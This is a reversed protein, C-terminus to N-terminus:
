PRRKTAGAAVFAAVAVIMWAALYVFAARPSVVTFLLGAVASAAFNGLSQITALAGFASGRVDLSAHNAVAAHEATEAFAIGLGAVGFCVALVVIQPGTVAFGVFSAAFAVAGLTLVPLSGRRDGLHGGPVSAIAAVANYGIYLWLAIQTAGTSGHSPSLLQVARLILLTAAVNGVEFAGIGFFLKGLEGKLVPRIQFRIPKKAPRSAHRTARIAYVIALSALLPGGIAGLNDMMREFGYAKGYVNKPVVDALLANRAPVRLGRASWAAARLVGVQWVGTTVGILSSFVATATYGGVASKRRREPDDALAGGTFRAAGACGDAIGEILGLAAASAGLTTTLFSPLLATPVEHGVDALFSAGGIGAVGRTLWARDAAPDDTERSRRLELLREAEETHALSKKQLRDVALDIEEDTALDQPVLRGDPLKLDPPGSV